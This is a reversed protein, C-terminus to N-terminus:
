LHHERIDEFNLIDSDTIHLIHSLSKQEMVKAHIRILHKQMETQIRVFCEQKKM